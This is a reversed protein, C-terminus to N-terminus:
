LSDLALVAGPLPLINGACGPHRVIRCPGTGGAVHGRDAQIRLMSSFFRNEVLAWAAVAYELAVLILGVIDFRRPIGSSWGLRHDIAAVIVLPFWLSLGMLETLVEDGGKVDSAKERVTRAREALLRPNRKEALVRGGIGASTTLRSFLWARWWGSDRGGILLILPPSPDTASTRICGYLGM